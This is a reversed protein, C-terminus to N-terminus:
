AREGKGAQWAGSRLAIGHAGYQRATDMLAPTMGGLAFVPLPYDRIAEVCDM